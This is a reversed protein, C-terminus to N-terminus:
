ICLPYISLGFKLVAQHLLAQHHWYPKAIGIFGSLASLAQSYWYLRIIDIFNPLVLLARYHRYLLHELCHRFLPYLRFFNINILLKYWFCSVTELYSKLPILLITNEALKFIKCPSEFKIFSIALSYFDGPFIFKLINKM